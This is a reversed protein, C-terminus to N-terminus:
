VDSLGEAHTKIAEAIALAEKKPLALWKVPTGFDVYVLNKSPVATVALRLGGEDDECLKGGPFDGTAGLKEM